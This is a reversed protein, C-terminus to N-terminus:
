GETELEALEQELAREADSLNQQFNPDQLAKELDEQNIPVDPNAVLDSFTEKLEAVQTRAATAAEQTNHWQGDPQGGPQPTGPGDALLNSLAYEYNGDVQRLFMGWQENWTIEAETPATPAGGPSASEAAEAAASQAPEAQGNQATSAAAKAATAEEATMWTSGPRIAVKDDSFAFQYVQGPGVRTLMQWNDDWTGPDEAPTAQGTAEGEAEATESEAGNQTPPALRTRLVKMWEVQQNEDVLEDLQRLLDPDATEVKQYLEEVRNQAEFWQKEWGLDQALGDRQEVLTTNNLERQTLWWPQTADVFTDREM